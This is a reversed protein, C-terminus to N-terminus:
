FRYIYGVRLGTQSSKDVLPSDKIASGLATVSVDLFLSQRPALAYSTRLGAELNATAKGEYAARGARAESANVGYYYGVYQRDVWTAALRPAFEFSGYRFGREASLRFKQGKSNGSADGLLEASVTAIDNRWTAAGGLWIGDKREAMGDFVPSDGTEYGDGSYRARLSFTVPGAAPLKLDLSPGRVSIWRNEFFLLPLVSNDNDMDRYAKREVGAGIGLGWQSASDTTAPEDAHAAQLCLASFAAALLPRAAPRRASVTRRAPFSASPHISLAPKM